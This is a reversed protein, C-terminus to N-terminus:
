ARPLPTLAFGIFLLVFLLVPTLVSVLVTNDLVQGSAQVSGNGPPIQPGVFIAVIPTLIVSAVLWLILFRRGYGDGPAPPAAAPADASM